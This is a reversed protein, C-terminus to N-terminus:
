VKVGHAHATSVLGTLTSSNWVHWNSDATLIGQNNVRIAFFAVTSLLDFNWSPYGISPDGLSGATAYGFVERTLGFSNFGPDATAAHARPAPAAAQAPLAPAM